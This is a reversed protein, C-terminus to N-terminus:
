HETHRNYVKKLMTVGTGISGLTPTIAAQNTTILPAVLYVDSAIMLLGGIGFFLDKGVVRIKRLTELDEIPEKDEYSNLILRFSDNNKSDDKRIHVRHKELNPNSIDILESEKQTFENFAEEIFIDPIHHKKINAKEREFALFADFTLNKFTDENIFKSLPNKKNYWELFNFSQDSIKTIDEEKMPSGNFYHEIQKKLFDESIDLEILKNNIEKIRELLLETM